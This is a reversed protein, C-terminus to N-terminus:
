RQAFQSADVILFLENPASFEFLEDAATEKRQSFYIFTLWRIAWHARMPKSSFDFKGRGDDDLTLDSEQHRLVIKFLLFGSNEFL